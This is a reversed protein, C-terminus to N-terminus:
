GFHGTVSEELLNNGPLAQDLCSRTVKKDGRPEAERRQCSIEELCLLAATAESRIDECIFDQLSVTIEKELLRHM